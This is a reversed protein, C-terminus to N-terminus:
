IEPQPKVNSSAFSHLSYLIESILLAKKGIGSETKSHELFPIKIKEDM